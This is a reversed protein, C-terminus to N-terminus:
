DVSKTIQNKKIFNKIVHNVLREFFHINPIFDEQKWIKGRCELSLAHLIEEDQRDIDPPFPQGDHLTKSRQKYINELIHPLDEPKVQMYKYKPRNDYNWFEDDIYDLIFAVFRRNIFREKKLILSKLRNKTSEDENLADIEFDLKESIESLTPNEKLPHKQCLTEIASVLTLYALDLDEEIMLISRHYLRAALVTKQHYKKDLGEILHFWNSLTVLNTKGHILDKDNWRQQNMSHIIPRNNERVCQILKIRRRLFVSSLAVIEEAIGGGHYYANKSPETKPNYKNLSEAEKIRLILKRNEGEPVDGFEWLLIEYPDHSFEGVFCSDVQLEYEYTEYNENEDKLEEVNRICYM